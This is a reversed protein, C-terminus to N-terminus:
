ASDPAKTTSLRRSGPRTSMPRPPSHLTKGIAALPPTMGAEASASLRAPRTAAGRPNLLEIAKASGRSAARPSTNATGSDHGSALTNLM